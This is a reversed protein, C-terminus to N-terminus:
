GIKSQKRNLQLLYSSIIWLIAPVIFNLLIALREIEKGLHGFYAFLFSMPLTGCVLAFFFARKPMKTLGAMCSGIESLIPLWRSLVIFWGGKQYFLQQGKFYDEDGIIKKVFKAGFIRCGLYAVLGSLFSGLFAFLGGLYPGYIYGLASMIITGPLPLLIDGILLTIGFLWGWKDFYEIWRISGTNSFLSEFYEGFLLFPILVFLLLLIVVILWKM